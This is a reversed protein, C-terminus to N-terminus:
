KNPNDSNPNDTNPNVISQQIHRVVYKLCLSYGQFGVYFLINEMLAHFSLPSPQFHITISYGVTTSSSVPPIPPFHPSSYWQCSRGFTANKDRCVHCFVDKTVVFTHKDHCVWTQRSLAKTMVFMVKNCCAYKQRSLLHTKDHCVHKDCCVRTQWSLVKAEVFIISTDAGAPSLPTSQYHFM